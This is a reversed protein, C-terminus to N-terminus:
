NSIVWTQHLPQLALLASCAAQNLRFNSTNSNSLVLSWQLVSSLEFNCVWRYLLTSKDITKQSAPSVAGGFVLYDIEPHDAFFQMILHSSVKKQRYESRVRGSLM